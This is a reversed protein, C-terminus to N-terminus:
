RYLRRVGVDKQITQITLFVFLAILSFCLILDSVDLLKNMYVNSFSGSIDLKGLLNVLLNEFLSSKVVYTVVCAIVGIAEIVASIVWNKDVPIYDVGCDHYNRNNWDSWQNGYEPYFRVIRGM